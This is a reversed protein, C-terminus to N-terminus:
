FEFEIEKPKYFDLWYEDATRTTGSDNVMYVLNNTGEREQIRSVVYVIDTVGLDKIAEETFVVRDGKKIGKNSKFSSSLLMVRKRNNISYRKISKYEFFTHILGVLAMIHIGYKGIFDWIM